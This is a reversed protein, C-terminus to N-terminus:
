KFRKTASKRTYRNLIIGSSQLNPNRTDPTVYLAKSYAAIESATFRQMARISDIRKEPNGNRTGDLGLDTKLTSNSIKIADEPM